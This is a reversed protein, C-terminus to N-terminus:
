RRTTELLGSRKIAAAIQKAQSAVRRETMNPALVHLMEHILIELQFVKARHHLRPCLIIMRDSESVVAHCGVGGLVPSSEGTRVDFRGGNLEIAFRHKM